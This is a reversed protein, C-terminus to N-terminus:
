EPLGEKRREAAMARRYALQQLHHVLKNAALSTPEGILGTLLVNTKAAEAPSLDTLLDGLASADLISFSAERAQKEIEDNLRERRNHARDDPRSGDDSM